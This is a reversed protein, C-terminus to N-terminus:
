VLVRLVLIGMWFGMSNAARARAARGTFTQNLGIENGTVNGTPSWGRIGSTPLGGTEIAPINTGTARPAAGMVSGFGGMILAGLGGKGWSQVDLTRSGLFLEGQEDLSVHTGSLTLGPAGPAITEGAIAVASPASTLPTNSATATYPLAHATGGFILNNATDLSIPTESVTVAPAGPHITTGAISVGAPVPVAVAGNPLTTAPAQLDYPRSGFHVHNSSDLSIPTRSITIRPAGPTLTGM